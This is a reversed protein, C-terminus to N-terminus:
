TSSSVSGVSDPRAACSCRGFAERPKRLTTVRRISRTRIPRAGPCRWRFGRERPLRSKGGRPAVLSGNPYRELFSRYSEATGVARAHHFFLEEVLPDLEAILEPTSYRARFAEVGAAHRISRSGRSARAARPGSRQLPQGPFGRLFAHYASITDESRAHRWASGACGLLSAALAVALAAIRGDM